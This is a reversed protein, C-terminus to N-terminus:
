VNWLKSLTKASEKGKPEYQENSNPEHPHDTASECDEQLSTLPCCSFSSVSRSPVVRCFVWPLHSVVDEKDNYQNGMLTEM